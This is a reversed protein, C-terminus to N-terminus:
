TFYNYPKVSTILHTQHPHPSEFGWPTEAVTELAAANVLKAVGARFSDLGWAILHEAKQQKPSTIEAPPGRITMEANM